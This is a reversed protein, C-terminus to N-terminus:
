NVIFIRCSSFPDGPCNSASSIVDSGVGRVGRTPVQGRLPPRLRSPQPPDQQESKWSRTRCVSSLPPSSATATPGSRRPCPSSPPSAAAAPGPWVGTLTSPPTPPAPWAIYTACRRKDTLRGQTDPHHSIWWKTRPSDSVRRLLGHHRNTHNTGRLTM